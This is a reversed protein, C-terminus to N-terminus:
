IYSYLVPHQVTVVADYYDPHIRNYWLSYTEEPTLNTSIGLSEKMCDDTYMRPNSGEDMEIVWLGINSKELIFNNFSANDMTDGGFITACFICFLM